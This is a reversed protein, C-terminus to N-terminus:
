LDRPLGVALIIMCGQTPKEWKEAESGRKQM